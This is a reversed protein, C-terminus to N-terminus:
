NKEDAEGKRGGGGREKWRRGTGEVAEVKRVGAEENSGGAEENRGGAEEKRGGAEETGEIGM